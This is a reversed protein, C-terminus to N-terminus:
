TQDPPPPEPLADLPVPDVGRTIRDHLVSLDLFSPPIKKDFELREWTLVSENGTMLERLRIV